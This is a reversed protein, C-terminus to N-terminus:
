IGNFLLDIAMPIDENSMGAYGFILTNTEGAYSHFNDSLKPVRVNETEARELILSIIEASGSLLLHLGAGSGSIKLGLRTAHPTLADILIDRRARYLTKMRNLHRNLYGNDIFSALTHQDFRSVTSSYSKLIEAASTLLSPPLVMYAIRISPALIRSFTSIYIVNRSDMGQLSPIPRGAFNFESNYDDEIIYRGSKESAWKLLESRRGAPMIIGTPFQHSPTICAVSATCKSLAAASMGESDLPIYHLQRGCGALIAPTKAYGPEEVAFQADAPLLRCLLMLLYEMGAGIVIQEPSCNVARFERLYKCLTSRLEEDGQCNGSALLTDGNYLVEKGLKAWTRFPFSHADVTNTMFDYRYSRAVPAPAETQMIQAPPSLEIKSVYYGSRPRSSVYGEQCLMAYATEVTNASIGLHSALAKKSPLRENEILRGSRIGDAIYAYLQEYIPLRSKRDLELTFSNM